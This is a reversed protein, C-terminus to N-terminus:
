DNFFVAQLLIDGNKLAHRVQWHNGGDESSAITEDAGVVWLQDGVATIGYLNAPFRAEWTSPRSQPVQSALNSAVFCVVLFCSLKSMFIGLNFAFYLLVPILSHEQIRTKAKKNTAHCAKDSVEETIAFRVSAAALRTCRAMRLTVSLDPRTSKARCSERRPMSNTDVPPVALSSRSEPMATCSM